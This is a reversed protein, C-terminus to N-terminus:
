YFGPTHSVEDMFFKNSKANNKKKRYKAHKNKENKTSHPNL